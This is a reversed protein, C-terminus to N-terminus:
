RSKVYIKRMEDLLKVNVDNTPEIHVRPFLYSMDGIAREVTALRNGNENLIGLDCLLVSEKVQKYIFKVGLVVREVSREAVSYVEDYYQFIVGEKKLVTWLSVYSNAVLKNAIEYQLKENNRLDSETLKKKSYLGRAIAYIQGTRVYHKITEFLKSEDSYKWLVALDQASFVNRDSAQIQAIKNMNSTIISGTNTVLTLM